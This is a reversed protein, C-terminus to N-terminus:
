NEAGECDLDKIFKYRYSIQLVFVTYLTTCDKYDQEHTICSLCAKLYHYM